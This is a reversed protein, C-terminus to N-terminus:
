VPSLLAERSPLAARHRVDFSGARVLVLLASANRVSGHKQGDEFVPWLADSM